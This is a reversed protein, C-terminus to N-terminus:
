RKERKLSFWAMVVAARPPSTYLMAMGAPPPGDEALKPDAVPVGVPVDAGPEHHDTIVADIGRERLYDVEAANSIGCDVTIVLDPRLGIVRDLAAVSLGYGENFRHPVVAEAVGGLM